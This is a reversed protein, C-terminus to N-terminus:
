LDIKKRMRNIARRHARLGLILLFERSHSRTLLYSLIWQNSKEPKKEEEEEEEADEEGTGM